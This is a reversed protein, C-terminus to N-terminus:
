LKKNIPIKNLLDWTAEILQPKTEKSLLMFLKDYNEQKSSILYKPHNDPNYNSNKVIFIQQILGLERLYRDDDEDPDVYQNKITMNFENIQFGYADAIKVRLHGITQFYNM